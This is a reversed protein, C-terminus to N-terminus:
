LLSFGGDVRIDAGNMSESDDSCLFSISPLLDEPIGVRGLNCKSKLIQGLEDDKMENPAGAHQQKRGTNPFIGPSLLNSRIGDKALFSALYKTLAVLAHKSLSYIVPNFIKRGEYMKADPVLSGYLSGINIIHGGGQQKMSPIACQACLFPWYIGSEMGKMFTAKSIQELRGSEDNFGTNKSFDFSNNVLVQYNGHEKEIRRFCERTKEEDYLDAEYHFALPFDDFGEPEKRGLNIVKAGCELLHLAMAHGLYGSAGTFVITKKSLDRM